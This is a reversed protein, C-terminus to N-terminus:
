CLCLIMAARAGTFRESTETVSKSCHEHKVPLSCIFQTTSHVFSSFHHASHFWGEYIDQHCRQCYDDTMLAAEPIFNGSTTRIRSPEFAGEAALSAEPLYIQRRGFHMVLLIGSLALVLKRSLVPSAQNTKRPVPRCWILVTLGGLIHLVYVSSRSVTGSSLQPFGHIQILLLGSVIVLPNGFLFM